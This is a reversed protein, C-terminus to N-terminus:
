TERGGESTIGHRDGERQCPATGQRCLLRGNRRWDRYLRSIVMSPTFGGGGDASGVGSPVTGARCTLGRVSLPVRRGSVRRAPRQPPDGSM